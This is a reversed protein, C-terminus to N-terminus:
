PSITKMSTNNWWVARAADRHAAGTFPVSIVLLSLGSYGWIRAAHQTSTNSCGLVKCHHRSLAFGNAMGILSFLKLPAAVWSLQEYAAAYRQASDGKVLGRLKIPGWLHERAIVDHNAGRQLMGGTFWLGCDVHILARASPNCVESSREPPLPQGSQAVGAQGSAMSAVLTAVVVQLAIAKM